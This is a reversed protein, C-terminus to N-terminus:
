FVSDCYSTGPRTSSHCMGPFFLLYALTSGIAFVSQLIVLREVDSLRPSM